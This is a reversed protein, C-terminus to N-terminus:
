EHRAGIIVWDKAKWIKGSLCANFQLTDWFRETAGFPADEIQPLKYLGNIRATVLFCATDGKIAEIRDVLVSDLLWTGAGYTTNQQKYNLRILEIARDEKLQTGCSFLFFTGFGLLVRFLLKYSIPM